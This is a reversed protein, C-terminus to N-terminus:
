LPAACVSASTKVWCSRPPPVISLSIVAGSRALRSTNRPARSPRVASKRDWVSSKLSGLGQASAALSTEWGASSWNEIATDNGSSTRAIIEFRLTGGLAAFEPPVVFETTPPLDVALKVDGQEVFFQYRVIEVRGKRGLEPHSKTVPEWDIVVPDSSVVPLDAADCDEAAPIGAVTIGEPPAALVHSLRVEAGFEEGSSDRAEIEYVGEPFRAFFFEPALEDFSPEASELFLQTLGQRALDGSASVTLITRDRADDVELRTYPGGDVSAHLGLDGDTDNLELFLEAESLEAARVEPPNAALALCATAVALLATKRNM